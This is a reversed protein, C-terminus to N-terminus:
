LTGQAEENEEGATSSDDDLAVRKTPKKKAPKPQHRRLFDITSKERCRQRALDLATFGRADKMAVLDEKAIRVLFECLCLAGAAAAAHLATQGSQDTAFVDAGLQVLRRLLPLREGAKVARGVMGGSGAVAGGDIEFSTVWHLPTRGSADRINALRTRASVRQLQRSKQKQTGELLEEMQQALHAPASYGGATIEGTRCVHDQLGTHTLVWTLCELKMIVAQTLVDGDADHVPAHLSAVLANERAKENDDDEDDDDEDDNDEDDEDEDNDDDNGDNEDLWQIHGDDKLAAAWKIQARVSPAGHSYSRLREQETSLASTAKHEICGGVTVLWHIPSAGLSDKKLLEAVGCLRACMRLVKIAGEQAAAHVVGSMRDGMGAHLAQLSHADDEEVCRRIEPWLPNPLAAAAADSATLNGLPHIRKRHTYIPM